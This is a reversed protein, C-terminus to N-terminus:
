ALMGINAGRLCQRCDRDRLELLFAKRRLGFSGLGVPLAGLRSLSLKSGDELLIVTRSGVAASAAGVAVLAAVTAMCCDM